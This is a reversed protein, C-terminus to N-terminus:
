RPETAREKTSSFALQLTEQVLYQMLYAESEVGLANGPSYEEKIEQIVHVCEHAVLAAYQEKTRKRTWPEIALIICLAGRNIFSHVCANSRARGLFSPPDTVKLRAMEADFAEESIAIGVFCPWQGMNLYHIAPADSM